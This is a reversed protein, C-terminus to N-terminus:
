LALPQEASRGILFSEPTNDIVALGLAGACADYFRCAAILDSVRFGMHDIM